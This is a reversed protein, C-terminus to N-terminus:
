DAPEAMGNILAAANMGLVSHNYGGELIAFCGGGAASAAMRAMRGIQYYDATAMLGGWVPPYGSSIRM